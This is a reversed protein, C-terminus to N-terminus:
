TTPQNDTWPLHPAAARAQHRRRKAEATGRTKLDLFDTEYEEILGHGAFSYYVNDGVIIHDLVEMQRFNGAYVLDRTLARDNASSEPNGSPHNHAFIRSAAGCKIAAEIIERPYVASSNVTGQAIDAVEIIRNQSDLYLVKFVEKDLDRMSHYLYDFIEGASNHVPRAIIREKLIM